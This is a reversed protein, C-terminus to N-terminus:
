GDYEVAISEGAPNFLRIYFEEEDEDAFQNVELDFCINLKEVNRARRRRVERGSEKTAYGRVDIDHVMITAAEDVKKSLQINAETLHDREHSLVERESQLAVNEQRAMAVSTSLQEAQGKPEVNEEALMKNEQKLNNNKDM